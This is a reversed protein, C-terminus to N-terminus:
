ASDTVEGTYYTINISKIEAGPIMFYDGPMFYYRKDLQEEMLEASPEPPTDYNVESPGTDAASEDHQIDQVGTDDALKRRRVATLYIRSLTDDKALVYEELFGSYIFAGNENEVLVDLWCNMVKKWEGAKDPYDLILGDFYIQWENYIRFLSYQLHLRTRLAIFRM